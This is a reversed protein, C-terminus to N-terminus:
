AARGVRKEANVAWAGDAFLAACSVLQVDGWSAVDVKPLWDPWSKDTSTLVMAETARLAAAFLALRDEVPAAAATAFLGAVSALVDPDWAVIDVKPMLRMSKRAAAFVMTQITDLVDAFLDTSGGTRTAQVCLTACAQLTDEDWRALRPKPIFRPLKPMSKEASDRVMTQVAHLAAAFLDAALDTEKPHPM